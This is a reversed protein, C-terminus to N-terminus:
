RGAGSWGASASCWAQGLTAPLLKGAEQTPRNILAVTALLLWPACTWPCSTNPGSGRHSWKGTKHCQSFNRVTTPRPKQWWLVSILINIKGLEGRHFAEEAEPCHEGAPQEASGTFEDAEERLPGVENKKTPHGSKRRLSGWGRLWHPQQHWVQCWM